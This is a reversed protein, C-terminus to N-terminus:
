SGDDGSYEEDSDVTNKKKKSKKYGQVIEYDSEEDVHITSLTKLNNKPRTMMIPEVDSCSENESKQSYKKKIRSM